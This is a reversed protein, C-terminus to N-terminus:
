TKKIRFPKMNPRLKRISFFLLASIMLAYYGLFIHWLQFDVQRNVIGRAFDPEFISVLAAGPNAGMLFLAIMNAQQSSGPVKFFETLFIALFFTGAFIFLVTGYTVITSVMTKKFLTSFFIGLTGLILMTFLFIGFTAVLQGPSVGGYLFVISYLPLTAVIMLSLFALSSFLKSLIISTSSQQTTLLINLTQREREGSIAGATLGPTVFAILIMQMISLVIFFEKSNNPNFTGQFRDMTLYMFAFAVSGIALLYFLIALTSKLSRMRLRIEKDLVPNIWIKAWKM